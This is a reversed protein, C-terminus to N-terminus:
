KTDSTLKIEQFNSVCSFFDNIKELLLVKKFDSTEKYLKLNCENRNQKIATWEKEDSGFDSLTKQWAALSEKVKVINESIKTITEKIDASDLNKQCEASYKDLKEIIENAKEDIKLKHEERIIETVNKLQDITNRIFMSPDNTISEANKIAQHYEKCLNVAAKYDSGLNLNELNANILVELGKNINMYSKEIHHDVECLKCFFTQNDLNELHKHCVSSGCPLMVPKVLFNSCEGCMIALKVIDM